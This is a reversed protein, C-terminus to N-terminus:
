DVNNKEAETIGELTQVSFGTIKKQGSKMKEFEIPNSVERTAAFVAAAWAATGIFCIAFFLKKM